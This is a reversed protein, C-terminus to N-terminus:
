LGETFGFASEKNGGERILFHRPHVCIRLPKTSLWYEGGGGYVGM